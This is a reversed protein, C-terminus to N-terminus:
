RLGDSLHAFEGDIMTAAVPLDALAAPPVRRLDGDLIVLDAYHGPRLSGLSDERGIAFAADRTHAFLAEELSLRQDIGIDQGAHTTRAMAAAITDLPRYSAVDSDSSIVVRVGADLEARLPALRLARPGLTALFEDGRDVLYSPQNVTIVGLAAMRAIQADTPLGAHELRPRADRGPDARSANELATLVVEIALDGQAHVGVRWGQRCAAELDATLVDAPRFLYGSHEENRGYPQSLFATGGILSGDAYFKMPGISLHEDGFPGTLGLLEYAELQHSLPMCVTRVHLLGAQRAARYAALERSTVQADCVTTLGAETFATGARDVAAVLDSMPAQVHFNPGHAGIDVAVPLVRAMAADFCLGSVRGREDRLFRGGPPDEGRDDVGAARLVASSVLAAHGSVHYVVVPNGPALQDLDWRTPVGDAYKSHDFGFASVTAGAQAGAVARALQELLAAKSSVGPARVDTSALSEGTALFHNHADIFGPLLTRGALDITEGAPMAATVSADDGVAVIRGGAVAVATAWPAGTTGTTGPGTFGTTGTFVSGNVFRYTSM